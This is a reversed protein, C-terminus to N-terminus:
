TRSGSMTYEHPTFEVINGIVFKPQSSTTMIAGREPFQKFAVGIVYVVVAKPSSARPGHRLIQGADDEKLSPASPLFDSQM